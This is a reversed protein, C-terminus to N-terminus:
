LMFGSAWENADVHYPNFSLSVFEFAWWHFMMSEVILNTKGLRRFHEPEWDHFMFRLYITFLNDDVM